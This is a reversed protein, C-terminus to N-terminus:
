KSAEVPGDLLWEDSLVAGDCLFQGTRSASLALLTEPEAALAGPATIPESM